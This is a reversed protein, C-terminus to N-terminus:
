NQESSKSEPDGNKVTKILPSPEETFLIHFIDLGNTEIIKLIKEESM